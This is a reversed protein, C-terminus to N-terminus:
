ESRVYDAYNNPTEWVRIRELQAHGESRLIIRSTLRMYWHAALVEATPAEKILYLKGGQWSTELYGQHRDDSSWERRPKIVEPILPDYTSLCLGHDCPRDIEHMMEEKLFGFDLIMGSQEGHTHLMQASVTAEITYRHGHVNACKSGHDPVRHGMDIGIKTTITRM